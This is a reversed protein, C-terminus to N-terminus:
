SPSLVSPRIYYIPHFLFFFFFFFYDLGLKTHSFLPYIPRQTWPPNQNSHEGTIADVQQGSDRRSLARSIGVVVPYVTLCAQCARCHVVLRGKWKDVMMDGLFFVRLYMIWVLKLDIGNM